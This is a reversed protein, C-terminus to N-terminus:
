FVQGTKVKNSGGGGLVRGVVLVVSGKVALAKAAISLVLCLPSYHRAPKGRM